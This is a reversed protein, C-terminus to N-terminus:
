FAGFPNRTADDATYTEMNGAPSVFTVTHKSGDYGVTLVSCVGYEDGVPNPWEPTYLGYLLRIPTGAMFAGGIYEWDAYINSDRCPILLTGDDIISVKATMTTGDAVGLKWYLISWEAPNPQYPLLRM